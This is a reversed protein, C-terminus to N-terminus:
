GNLHLGVVTRGCRAANVASSRFRFRESAKCRRRTRVWLIGGRAASAITSSTTFLTYANNAWLLTRTGERERARDGSPPDWLTVCPARVRTTHRMARAGAVAQKSSTILFLRSAIRIMGNSVWGTSRFALCRGSESAVRRAFSVPPSGIGNASALSRREVPLPEDTKRRRTRRVFLGGRVSSRLPRRRERAVSPLRSFLIRFMRSAKYKRHIFPM